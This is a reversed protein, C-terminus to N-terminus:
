CFFHGLPRRSQKYNEQNDGDDQRRRDISQGPPHPDVQLDAGVDEGIQLTQGRGQLRQEGGEGVVVEVAADAGVDGEALLEGVVQLVAVGPPHALFDEIRRRGVPLLGASVAVESV